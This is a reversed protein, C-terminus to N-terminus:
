MLFGSVCLKAAEGGFSPVEMDSNIHVKSTEKVKSHSSPLLPAPLLTPHHLSVPIGTEPTGPIPNEWSPARTRDVKVPCPSPGQLANEEVLVGLALASGPSRGSAGPVLLPGGILLCLDPRGIFDPM